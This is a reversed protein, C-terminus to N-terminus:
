VTDVYKNYVMFFDETPKLKPNSKQYFIGSWPVQKTCVHVVATCM